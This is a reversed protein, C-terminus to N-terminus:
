ARLLFRLPIEVRARWAAENHEGGDIKAVLLDQGEIYGARRLHGNMQLQFPEYDADLGLTGYDFYLRHAGAPPLAAGMATVLVSGGITWHTSLCGAAGFLAPYEALAYLSILGGMSSGMVTTQERGPLTRFRTDVLPKVTHVLLRLYADSRPPGGAHREFSRRQEHTALTHFPREPMYDRWRQSTNWLGVVIVGDSEGRRMLRTIAAHVEWSQGGFASGRAFINQGDHMYLVPFRQEPREDYGPPCWVDVRRPLIGEGELEGLTQFTGTDSM